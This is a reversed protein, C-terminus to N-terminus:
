TMNELYEKLFRKSKWGGGVNSYGLTKVLESDLKNEGVLSTMLKNDTDVSCPKIASFSAYTMTTLIPTLVIMGLDNEGDDDGFTFVTGSVAIETGDNRWGGISLKLSDRLYDDRTVLHNGIQLTKEPIFKSIDAYYANVIPFYRIHEMMVINENEMSGVWTTVHGYMKFLEADSAFKELEDALVTIVKVGELVLSAAYAKKKSNVLTGVRLMAVRKEVEHGVMRSYDPFMLTEGTREGKKGTVVSTPENKASGPIEKGIDNGGCGPFDSFGHAELIPEGTTVCTENKSVSPVFKGCFGKCAKRGRGGTDYVTSKTVGSEVEGNGVSKESWERRKPGVHGKEILLKQKKETDHTEESTELGTKELAKRESESRVKDRLNDASTKRKKASSPTSPEKPPMNCTSHHATNHRFDHLIRGKISKLVFSFNSLVWHFYSM